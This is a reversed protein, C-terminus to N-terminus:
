GVIYVAVLGTPDATKYRCDSATQTPDLYFKKLDAYMTRLQHDGRAAVKETEVAFQPPLPPADDTAAGIGGNNISHGHGHGHRSSCLGGSSDSSHIGLGIDLPIFNNTSNNSGSGSSSTSNTHVYTSRMRIRHSLVWYTKLLDMCQLPGERMGALQMNAVLLQLVVASLPSYEHVGGSTYNSEDQSAVGAGQSFGRLVSLLDMPEEEVAASVM